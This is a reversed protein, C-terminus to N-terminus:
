GFGTLPKVGTEKQTWTGPGEVTWKSTKVIAKRLIRLLGGIWTVLEAVKCHSKSSLHPLGTAL